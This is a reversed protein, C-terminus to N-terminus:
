EPREQRGEVRHVSSQAGSMATVWNGSQTMAPRFHARRWGCLKALCLVQSTFERESIKPLGELDRRDAANAEPKTIPIM